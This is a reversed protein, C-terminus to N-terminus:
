DRFELNMSQGSFVALDKIRGGSTESLELRLYMNAEERHSSSLVRGIIKAPTPYPIVRV